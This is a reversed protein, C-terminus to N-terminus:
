IVSEVFDSTIVAAEKKVSQKEEQLEPLGGM